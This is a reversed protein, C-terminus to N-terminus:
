DVKLGYETQVAKTVPVDAIRAYDRIMSEHGESIAMGLIVKSPRIFQITKGHSWFEEPIDEKGYYWSGADHILRWENEYSWDQLKHMAMYEMLGFKPYERHLFMNTVDPMKDVYYVPFLMNMQYINKINRTEYELCIGTHANTYHHWMPLNDPKTSFCAFRVMNRSMTNMDANLKEFATMVAKTLAAKTEEVREAPVSKEAVFTLLDNYWTDSSFIREYEEPEMTERFLETFDKRDWMYTAPESNRLVSSVEFPDNLDKPHSLFLEGRIIEGFRHKMSDNSLSRYRFLKEPIHSRKLDLAKGYSAIDNLLYLQLFEEKWEMKAVKCKVM